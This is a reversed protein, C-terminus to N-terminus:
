IRLRDAIWPHVHQVDFGNGLDRVLRINRQHDIIREGRRIQAPRDFVTAIDHHMRGCLKDAAMACRDTTYDDVAALEGPVLTWERVNDLGGLVIMPHFKVLREASQSVDDFGPGVTKAVESRREAGEIREQE